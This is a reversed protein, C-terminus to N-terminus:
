DWEKELSTSLLEYEQPGVSHKEFLELIKKRSENLRKYAVDKNKDVLVMKFTTVYEDALFNKREESSVTVGGRFEETQEAVKEPAPVGPQALVGGDRGIRMSLVLCVFALIIIVVYSVKNQM